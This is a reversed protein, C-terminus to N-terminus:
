EAAQSAEEFATNFDDESHVNVVTTTNLTPEVITSNKKYMSERHRNMTAPDVSQEANLIATLALVLPKKDREEKKLKEVEWFVIQAVQFLVPEEEQAKMNNISYTIMYDQDQKLEPSNFHIEFTGDEANYNRCTFTPAQDADVTFQPDFSM